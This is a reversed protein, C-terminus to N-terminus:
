LHATRWANRLAPLRGLPYRRYIGHMLFCRLFANMKHELRSLFVTFRASPASNLRAARALTWAVIPVRPPQGNRPM